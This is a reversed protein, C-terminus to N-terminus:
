VGSTRARARWPASRGSLASRRWLCAHGADARLLICTCFCATHQREVDAYFPMRVQVGRLRDFMIARYGGDVNFMSAQLLSAGAGLGVAGKAINNLANAAM